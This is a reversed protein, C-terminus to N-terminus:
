YVLLRGHAARGPQVFDDDNVIVTADTIQQPAKQRLFAKM